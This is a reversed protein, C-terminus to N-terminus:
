VVREAILRAIKEAWIAHMNGSYHLLDKALLNKNGKIQRTDETINIFHCKLLTAASECIKNLANIESSIKDSNNKEAFPTQGWDPISIVFVHDPHEGSLHISKHILFDFDTKFDATSLGQYQNNVGILLTVFDYTEELKTHLIHEALEASTWGTRAIIEPAHFNKGSRRLMQVTQYPFGEYLPVSEGITYSDGLALFSYLHKSM